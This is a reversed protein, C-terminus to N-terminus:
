YHGFRCTEGYQCSGRAFYACRSSGQANGQQHQAPPAPPYASSISVPPSMHQFRCGAGFRCGGPSREFKCLNDASGERSVSAPQTAENTSTTVPAAAPSAPAASETTPVAAPAAASAPASTAASRTALEASVQSEFAGDICAPDKCTDVGNAKCCDCGHKFGKCCPCNRCEPFWFEGAHASLKGNQSPMASQPVYPASNRAPSYGGNNYSKHGYAAPSMNMGELEQMM